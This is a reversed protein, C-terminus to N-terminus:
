RGLARKVEAASSLHVITEELKLLRRMGQDTWKLWM